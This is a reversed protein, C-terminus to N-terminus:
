DLGVDDMQDWSPQARSSSAGPQPALAPRQAPEPASPTKKQLVESTIYSLDPTGSKAAATKRAAPTGDDRMKQPAPSNDPSNETGNQSYWQSNSMEVDQLLSTGDGSTKGQVRLLM